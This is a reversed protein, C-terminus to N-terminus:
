PVIVPVAQQVAFLCGESTHWSLLPVEWQRETRMLLPM